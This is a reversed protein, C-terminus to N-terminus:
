ALRSYPALKYISKASVKVRSGDRESEREIAMWDPDAALRSWAEHRAALSEFPIVYTFQPMHGGAASAANVIPYIGARHFVATVGAPPQDHWRSCHYSRIEFIGAKLRDADVPSALREPAGVLVQSRVELLAGASELEARRNQVLRDAAIRGSAALLEDFSSFSTLVLAQPSQPAVIAELCIAPRHQIEEMLPLVVGGLYSHVHPMQEADAAYFSELALLSSTQPRQAANATRTDLAGAASAGLWSLLSRRNIM